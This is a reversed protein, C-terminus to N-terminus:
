RVSAVDVQGGRGEPQYSRRGTRLIWATTEVLLYLPIFRYIIWTAAYLASARFSYYVEVCMWLYFLTTWFRHARKVYWNHLAGLGTGVICALLAIGAPDNILLGQAIVGFMLGVSRDDVGLQELYWNSPDIKQFPLLQQPIIRFLDAWHLLMPVSQGEREYLVMDYATGFLAQFENSAQLFVGIDDGTEWYDRFFGLVLFAVLVSGGIVFAKTMSLATVFRHYLFVSAISFLVLETRAGMKTVTSILHVAFWLWFVYRIARLHFNRFLVILLGLKAILQIGAINHTIQQVFLPLDYFTVGQGRM